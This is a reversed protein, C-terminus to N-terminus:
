WCVVSDWAAEQKMKVIAEPALAHDVRVGCRDGKRWMVKGMRDVPGVVLLVESGPEPLDRGGIRAGEASLDAIMVSRSRTISMASGALMVRERPIRRRCSGMVKKKGFSM